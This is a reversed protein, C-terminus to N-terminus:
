WSMMNLELKTIEEGEIQIYTKISMEDDGLRLKSILAGLEDLEEQLRNKEREDVLAFDVIWTALYYVRWGGVIRSLEV